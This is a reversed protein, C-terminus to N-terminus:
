EKEPYKIEIGNTKAVLSVFYRLRSSDMWSKESLHLTWELLDATNQIQEASIDYDYGGYKLVFYGDEFYINKPIDYQAMIEKELKDMDQFM